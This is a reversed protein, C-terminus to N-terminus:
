HDESSPPADPGTVRARGVPNLRHTPVPRSARMRVPYRPLETLAVCEFSAFVPPDPLADATRSREVHVAEVSGNPYSVAGPMLPNAFDAAVYLILLISLRSLSM